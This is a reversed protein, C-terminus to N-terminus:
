FVLERENEHGNQKQMAAMFARGLVGGEYSKRWSRPVELKEEATDESEM